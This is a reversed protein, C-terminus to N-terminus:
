RSTSRTLTVLRAGDAGLLELTRGGVQFRTAAALLALYGAEQEMVGDPEPCHKRTAAAASIAIRGGDTEYSARYRNCGASGALEGDGGFDATITTGSLVSTFADGRLYGTVEWVGVPSAPGFRLLDEGGADVLVLADADVSWAAVAELAGLYGRELADLPPLCAMLTSAVPGIELRDGDVTYTGSYRNCGTSGSLRGDLFTASPAADDPIELAVGSALVWPIGEFPHSGGHGTM